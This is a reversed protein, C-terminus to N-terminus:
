IRQCQNPTVANKEGSYTTLFAISKLKSQVQCDQRRAVDIIESIAKLVQDHRWTYRGDTLAVNYSFLVHELNESKQCLMLFSRIDLGM